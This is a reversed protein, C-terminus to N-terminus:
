GSNSLLLQNEKKKKKREKNPQSPLHPSHNPNWKAAAKYYSSCSGRRWPMNEWQLNSESYRAIIESLKYIGPVSEFYVTSPWQGYFAPIYYSRQHKYLKEPSRGKKMATNKKLNTKSVHKREIKM